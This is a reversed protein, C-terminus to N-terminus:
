CYFRIDSFFRRYEEDNQIVDCLLATTIVQEHDNERKNAAKQVIDVILTELYSSQM